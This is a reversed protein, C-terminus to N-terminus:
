KGNGDTEPAPLLAVLEHVAMNLRGQWNNHEMGTKRYRKALEEMASRLLLPDNVGALADFCVKARAQYARCGAAHTELEASTPTRVMEGNANIWPDPESM